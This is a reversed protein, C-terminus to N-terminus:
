YTNSFLSLSFTNKTVRFYKIETNELITHKLKIRLKLTIKQRMKINLVSDIDSLLTKNKDFYNKSQLLRINKNKREM